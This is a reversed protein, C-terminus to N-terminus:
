IHILSLNKAFLPEKQLSVLRNWPGHSYNDDPLPQPNHNHKPCRTGFHKTTAMHGCVLCLKLARANPRPFLLIGGELKIQQVKQPNNLFEQLFVQHEVPCRLTMFGNTVTAFNNTAEQTAM